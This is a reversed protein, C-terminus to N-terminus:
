GVGQHAKVSEQPLEAMFTSDPQFTQGVTRHLAQAVWRLNYRFQLRAGAPMALARLIDQKYRPMAASSLCLLM